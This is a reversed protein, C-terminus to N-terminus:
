KSTAKADLTAYFAARCDQKECVEDAQSVPTFPRDCVTCDRPGLHGFYGPQTFEREPVVMHEGLDLVRACYTAVIQLDDLKYESRTIDIREAYMPDQLGVWELVESACHLLFERDYKKSKAM